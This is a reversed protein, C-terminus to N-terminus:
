DPYLRDLENIVDLALDLVDQVTSDVLGSEYRVEVSKRHLLEYKAAIEPYLYRVVDNVGPGRSPHGNHFDVHRSSASLRPNVARAAADSALRPDNCLVRRVARYAAYFACVAGWENGSRTLIAAVDLAKDQEL